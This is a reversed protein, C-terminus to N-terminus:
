SKAIASSRERDSRDCLYVRIRDWRDHDNRDNATAPIMPSRQCFSFKTEMHDNCDSFVKSTIGAITLSRWRDYPFWAISESEIGAITITAITPLRQSRQRDSAFHFKPKWIITVIASCKVLSGLSRSRDGVIMHFGPKIGYLIELEHPCHSKLYCPTRGVGGQHFIHVLLRSFFPNIFDISRQQQACYPLSM